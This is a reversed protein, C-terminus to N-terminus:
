GHSSQINHGRGPELAGMRKIESVASVEGAGARGVSFVEREANNAVEKFRNTAGEKFRNNAGEKFGHKVGEKFRNKAGEKFRREVNQDEIGGSRKAGPVRSVKEGEIGSAKM